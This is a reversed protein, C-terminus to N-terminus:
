RAQRRPHNLIETMRKALAEREDPLMAPARLQREIVQLEEAYQWRDADPLVASSEPQVARVGNLSAQQMTQESAM